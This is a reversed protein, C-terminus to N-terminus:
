LEALGEVNGAEAAEVLDVGRPDVAVADHEGAVEGHQREAVVDLLETLPVHAPLEKGGLDERSRVDRQLNHVERMVTHSPQGLSQKVPHLVGQLLDVQAVVLEAVVEVRDETGPLELM